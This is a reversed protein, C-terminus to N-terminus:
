AIEMELLVFGHDSLTQEGVGNARLHGNLVSYRCPRAIHEPNEINFAYSVFIFDVVDAKTGHFHTPVRPGGFPNPTLDHADFLRSQASALKEEETWDSFSREDLDYRTNQNTLSEIVVSNGTDNMDGLVVVPANGNQSIQNMVDLYIMSAEAGRQAMSLMRGFSTAKAAAFVKDRATVAENDTDSSSARKSKLHCVYVTTDGIEPMQIVSRLPLRSFKFDGEVPVVEVAKIPHKSAIAVVTASYINSDKEIPELNDVVAFEPYGAAAVLEKLADPSFVEQFGVVDADMATLQETLWQKKNQWEEDTYTADPKYWAVPPEAFQFLNCTAFKITM